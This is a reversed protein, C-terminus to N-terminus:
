GRRGGAATSEALAARAAAVLLDGAARPTTLTIATQPLPGLQRRVAAALLDITM